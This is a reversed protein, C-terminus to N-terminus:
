MNATMMGSPKESNIWLVDEASTTPVATQSLSMTWTVWVSQAATSISWNTSMTLHITTLQFFALLILFLQSELKIWSKSRPISSMKRMSLPILSHFYYSRTKHLCSNGRSIENLNFRWRLKSLWKNFKNFNFSHSCNKIDKFGTTHAKFKHSPAKIIRLLSLM